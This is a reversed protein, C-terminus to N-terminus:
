NFGYGYGDHLFCRHFQQFHFPGFHGGEGFVRRDDDRDGRQLLVAPVHRYEGVAQEQAFDHAAELFWELLANQERREKPEAVRVVVDVKGAGLPWPPLM